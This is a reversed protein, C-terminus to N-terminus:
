ARLALKRRVAGGLLAGGLLLISAPEPVTPGPTPPCSYLSFTLASISFEHDQKGVIGPAQFIISSVVANISIRQNGASSSDRASFAHNVSTNSQRTLQYSGKEFYGDEYFLDSLSVTSLKVDELFSFSIREQGEVEDNEYGVGKIGFGDEDDWSLKGNLARVTIKVGDTMWSYSSKGNASSFASTRFDVKNVTVAESTTSFLLVFAALFAASLYKSM